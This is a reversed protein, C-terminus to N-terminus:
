KWNPKSSVSLLLKILQNGKYVARGATHQVDWCEEERPLALFYFSASFYLVKNVEFCLTRRLLFELKSTGENQREEYKLRMKTTKIWRETIGCILIIELSSLFCVLPKLVWLCSQLSNLCYIKGGGM